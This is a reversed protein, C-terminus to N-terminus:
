WPYFSALWTPQLLKLFEGVGFFPLYKRLNLIMERVATLKRDLDLM